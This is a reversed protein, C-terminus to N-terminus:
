LDVVQAVSDLICDPRYPSKEAMARTSIGTLVLASRMGVNVAMRIDTELRDGVMWCDRAPLDLARLAAQAMFPSPKGAVLHIPEGTLAEMAGILAATDPLEGGDVPCTRDPNSAILEAGHRWAQYARNLKEYTLDRDWSLLVYRAREPCYTLKVGHRRLEERIPREGIVLVQEDPQLREKLLCATVLSSHIVDRERAPIGIRNLKEVYTRRAAIPKNSLFVVRDGREQLARVAEVAGPIKREGLYITGDLDFIFGKM